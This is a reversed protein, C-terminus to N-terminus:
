RCSPSPIRTRGGPPLAGAGYGCEDLYTGIEAPVDMGALLVATPLQSAALPEIAGRASAPDIDPALVACNGMPHPEGTLWRCYACEAAVNRGRVMARFATDLHRGILM